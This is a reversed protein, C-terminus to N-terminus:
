KSAGPTSTSACKESEMKYALRLGKIAKELPLGWEYLMSGLVLLASAATELNERDEPSMRKNGQRKSPSRMPVGALHM